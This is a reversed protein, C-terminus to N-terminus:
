TTISLAGTSCLVPNSAFLHVLYGWHEKCCRLVTGWTCHQARRPWMFHGTVKIAGAKYHCLTTHPVTNLAQVHHQLSPDTNVATVRSSKFCGSFSYRSSPQLSATPMGKLSIADDSVRSIRSSGGASSSAPLRVRLRRCSTPMCTMVGM